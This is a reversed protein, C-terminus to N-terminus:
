DQAMSDFVSGATIGYSGVTRVACSEVHTDNFTLYIGNYRCGLVSIGSVRTNVPNPGSFYVGSGFGNGSYTGSGNNTVGSTILGNVITINMVGNLLIGSSTSAPSETSSIAFGNLDLTVNNANITIANGSSVTVNTTLYYSGPASITFPASAIPTRPEVQSLTKMTPAPAGPPSLMGQANLGSPHLIIFSLLLVAAIQPPLKPKM